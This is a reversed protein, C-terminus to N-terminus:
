HVGVQMTNIANKVNLAEIDKSKAKSHRSNSSSQDKNDKNVINSESPNLSKSDKDLRSILDRDERDQAYHYVAYATAALMAVGICIMLATAMDDPGAAPNTQANTTVTTKVGGSFSTIEEAPTTYAETSFLKRLGHMTAGTVIIGSVAIAGQIAATPPTFAGERLWQTRSTDTLEQPKQEKEKDREKFYQKCAEKLMDDFNMHHKMSIYHSSRTGGNISSNVQQIVKEHAELLDQDETNADSLLGIFTDFAALVSEKSGAISSVQKFKAKGFLKFALRRSEGGDNTFNDDDPQNSLGYRISKLTQIWDKTNPM